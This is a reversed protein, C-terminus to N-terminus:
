VYPRIKFINSKIANQRRTLYQLNWIVNLGSVLKGNLPIIHDVVYGKPCKQYFEFIGDQGFNLQGRMRRKAENVRRYLKVKQSNKNRWINLSKLFKQPNLKRWNNIAAKIKVLHRKRRKIENLQVQQPNLKQWKRCAIIGCLRCGRNSNRGYIITNHGNKCFQKRRKLKLDM